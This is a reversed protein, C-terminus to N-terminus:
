EGAVIRSEQQFYECKDDRTLQTGVAQSIVNVVDCSTGVFGTADFVGQETVTLTGGNPHHVLLSGDGAYETQWGQAFAAQQAAQIAYLGKLKDLDKVDGWHGGYDDFALKNDASRLVLPHEWGPLRFGFGRERQISYLDHLGEGLVTGGMAVVAAALASQNSLEIAVTVTHSVVKTRGVARLVPGFKCEIYPRCSRQCSFKTPQIIHLNM